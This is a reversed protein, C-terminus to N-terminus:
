GTRKYIMGMVQGNSLLTVNSEYSLGYGMEGNQKPQPLLSRDIIYADETAEMLIKFRLEFDIREGKTIKKSKRSEL